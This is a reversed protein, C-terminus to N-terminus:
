VVPLGIEGCVRWLLLARTVLIEASFVRRNVRCDFSPDEINKFFLNRTKLDTLFRLFM